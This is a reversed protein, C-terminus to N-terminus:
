PLVSTRQPIANVAPKSPVARMKLREILQEYGHEHRIADLDPDTELHGVNKYGRAVADSLAQLSLQTYRKQVALDEPTLQNAHRGHAASASSLAYCCAVDYLNGADTPALGRLMEATAAAEAHQGREALKWVRICLLPRKQAGPKALAADIDDLSGMAAQCLALMQKERLYIKRHVDPSQLKGATELEEVKNMGRQFWHAAQPFDKVQMDAFGLNPYTTLMDNQLKANLPDAASLSELIELAHALYNRGEAFRGRSRLYRGVLEHTKALNTKDQQDRPNADALDKQTKLAQQYYEWANDWDGLTDSTQGLSVYMRAQARRADANQPDALALREFGDLAQRYYKRARKVDQLQLSNNGLKEYSISLDRQRTPSNPNSKALEDRLDLAKLYHEGAGSHDGAAVLCMDGLSQYATALEEKSKTSHPDATMIEERLTVNKSYHELAAAKDGMRLSIDGLRQYADALSRKSETGANSTQQCLDFAKLYSEKAKAKDGAREAILGLKDYSLALLKKAEDDQPNGEVLANAIAYSQEFYRQAEETRGSLRLVVEGLRRYAGAMSRQSKANSAVRRLREIATDLIEQKLDHTAPTDKLDDQVQFAWTQITESLLDANEEARQQATVAAQRKQDIQYAAVLSGITLAALLVAVSASLIAVRPNRKSWRWAKEMRGVPRAQIPEGALYRRLDNALEGATSYRRSPEKALCKLSITELDRPIKDNLSRPARPEDALIQQLVMRAVGRFPLEGTLMEYLIVGLSYIDSRGDVAHAEGRAQEPSMYAPTGLIQGEVTVTVEGEDRRALGFDMVFARKEPVLPWPDPTLSSRSDSEQGRVGAGQNRGGTGAISGLMINSPKLDRHIVGHQHAHDLAEAVQVAVHAAERFGYRRETLSQALTVGQVFASVIYPVPAGRGVEYVPVIGPHNLQAVSRAERAFRDVDAPTLWQGGRPVKVAVIRDLATDRARYVAGFAGQGVAELLEFSGLRPLEQPSWIPTGQLDLRFNHGCSSCTV